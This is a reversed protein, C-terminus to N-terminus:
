EEPEGGRELEPNEKDEVHEANCICVAEVDIESKM